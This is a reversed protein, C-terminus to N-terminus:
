DSFPIFSAAVNDAKDEEIGHEMVGKSKETQSRENGPYLLYSACVFLLIIIPAFVEIADAIKHILKM